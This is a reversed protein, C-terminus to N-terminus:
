RRGNAQLYGVLAAPDDSIIADVGAAVLREWVKEDNATWPVVQLGAEHAAAVEEARVTTFHPSVITAGAEQALEVLTRHPAGMAYPYLASLRMAPELKKMARLTRYDFSQLIVRSILKNKKVVQLVLEAFQEPGPAQEPKAASIKTEINFEVRSKKRKVLDFVEQLTPVQTGPVAMQKPFDPNAKAGCDWRRLEALTM